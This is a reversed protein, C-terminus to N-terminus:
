GNARPNPPDIAASSLVAAIVDTYNWGKNTFSQAFAGRPALWADPSIELFVFQGNHLKGDVRCYSYRGLTRLFAQLNAKDTDVLLNDITRVDRPLRRFQKEEADFLHEHFYDDYGMVTVEALAWLETPRAEISCYSVEKGGVFQEIMVPQKFTAILQRALATGSSADRVLNEQTIGISSGEMVPKIVCPLPFREITALDRETRLLRYTPTCLGCESALRKSIEKDQCIVRGYVDLGIYRLGHTECIAPVLAMRNRSSEGGYISWVIDDRHHSANESLERPHTYHHSRLGLSDVANKLAALTAAETQELDRRNHFAESSISPDFIDAVIVVDRFAFKRTSVM